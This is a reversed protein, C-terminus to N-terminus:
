LCHINADEFMERISIEKSMARQIEESIQELNSSDLGIFLENPGDLGVYVLKLMHVVGMGVPNVTTDVGFVPRIDTFVRCDNFVCKHDKLIIIAKYSNAVTGNEDLLNELRIRIKDINDISIESSLEESDGISEVIQTVIEDVSIDSRESLNYILFLLELLDEIVEKQLYPNLNVVANALRENDLFPPISKLSELLSISEKEPLSGITIFALRYDNLWQDILPNM